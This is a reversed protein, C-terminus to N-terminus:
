YVQSLHSYLMTYVQSLFVVQTAVYFVALLTSVVMKCISHHAVNFEQDMSSVCWIYYYGIENRAKVVKISIVAIILSM